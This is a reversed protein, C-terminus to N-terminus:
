RLCRHSPPKYGMLGLERGLIGLISDTVSDLKEQDKDRMGTIFSLRLKKASSTRDIDEAFSETHAASKM